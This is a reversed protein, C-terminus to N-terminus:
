LNNKIRGPVLTEEFKVKEAQSKDLEKKYYEPGWM